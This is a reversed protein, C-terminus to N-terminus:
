PLAIGVEHWAARVAQGEASGQGFLQDANNATLQAFSQFDSTPQLTPDHLTNYWILGAKEWSYGGLQTAVLYFAHNPIGSNIHVGGNDEATQVYNKMTAPQPDQGLLPDNYATGPAKMSRL